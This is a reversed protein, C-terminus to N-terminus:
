APAWCFLVGGLVMQFYITPLLERRKRARRKQLLDQAEAVLAKADALNWGQQEEMLIAVDEPQHGQELAALVEQRKLARGAPASGKEPEM